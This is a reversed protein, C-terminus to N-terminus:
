YIFTLGEYIKVNSFNPTDYSITWTFLAIARGLKQVQKAFNQVLHM